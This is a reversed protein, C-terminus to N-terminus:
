SISRCYLKYKYLISFRKDDPCWQVTFENFTGNEDELEGMYQCHGGRMDTVYYDLRNNVHRFGHMAMAVYGSQVTRFWWLIHDARPSVIACGDQAGKVVPVRVTM